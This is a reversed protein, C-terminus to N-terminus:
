QKESGYLTFIMYLLDSPMYLGTAGGQICCLSQKRKHTPSPHLEAEWQLPSFYVRGLM